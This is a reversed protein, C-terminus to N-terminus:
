ILLKKQKILLVRPELRTKNEGFDDKSLGDSSQAIYFVSKLETKFSSKKVRLKRGIMDVAESM